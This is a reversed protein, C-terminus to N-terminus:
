SAAGLGHGMGQCADETPDPEGGLDSSLVLVQSFGRERSASELRGTLSAEGLDWPLHVHPSVIDPDVSVNDMQLTFGAHCLPIWENM